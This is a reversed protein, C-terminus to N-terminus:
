DSLKYPTLFCNESCMFAHRFIDLSDVFLHIHCFIGRQTQGFCNYPGFSPLSYLESNVHVRSCTWTSQSTVLAGLSEFFCNKMGSHQQFQYFFKHLWDSPKKIFFFFAIKLFPSTSSIILSKCTKNSPTCVLLFNFLILYFALYSLCIECSNCALKRQSSLYDEPLLSHM